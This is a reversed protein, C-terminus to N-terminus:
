RHVQSITIDLPQSRNTAVVGADGELDGSQAIAQGSHSIRAGVFVRPVSSLTLQPSMAMADTLTVTAPLKDANLRAVALPMPPGHEARAYVFLTDGPRVQARLAPDLKITVKLSPGAAAVAPAAVSAPAAPAKGSRADAQAIQESVAKAVGSGPELLPQLRRWIEAAKAYDGQQFDSIGLLWLGRQSDPELQVARVLLERARGDIRHDPRAMSDAEAWGVMAVSNNADLKLVHEFADRAEEPQHMTTTAQALLMWAQADDPQQKLHGRLEALAKDLDLRPSGQRTIGDLARPTGVMLYLGFSALPLAFAIGLALAFVSRPRGSGRGQRMLPVLLLALAAAVM